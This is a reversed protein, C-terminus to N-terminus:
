RRTASRRQHWSALEQQRRQQDSQQGNRAKLMVRPWYGLVDLVDRRQTRPFQGYQDRFEHFQPGMGVWVEGRQFYPEMELVRVDKHQQGPKLTSSDVPVQSGRRELEQRLLQAFAVQQGALEVYIKRPSYQQAFSAARRIAALYTDHLSYCDLLFKHGQLDDGVVIIAARARDETQRVAFGGPDVLILIDLDTLRLVRRTGTGDTFYFQEGADLWTFHRLWEQKFTATVDDAPQNMMNAAFLVPDRLRLKALDEEPWREPFISRGDELIARRFVALDGVRYAQVTSSTGNPLPCTLDVPQQRQELGYAKEIYDYCDGTWWMTGIFTTISRFDQSNSQLMELQNIWRNVQHMIQWSGSRANEMAERSIADDVVIEDPHLGTVTGGVGIVFVTPEKRDAKRNVIIRSRSWTTDNLDKPIVEPFLARLFANTEFQQKIAFLIDRATEEKENAIMISIDPQRCIRQITRGQTVLTTKGVGRPVSILQYPADDLLVSGTRREAFRCMLAHTGVRMPVRDGYGLIVENMFYLDSLARQRLAHWKADGQVFSLQQPPVVLTPGDPGHPLSVSTHILAFAHRVLGTAGSIVRSTGVATPGRDGSPRLRVSEQQLGSLGM